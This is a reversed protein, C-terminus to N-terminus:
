VASGADRMLRGVPVAQLRESRLQAALKDLLPKVESPSSPTLEVVEGARLPSLRDNASHLQVAGAM